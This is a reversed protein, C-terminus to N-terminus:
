PPAYFRRAFRLVDEKKKLRPNLADYMFPKGSSGQRIKEFLLEGAANWLQIHLEAMASYQIPQQYGPADRWASPQFARQRISLRYPVIVIGAGTAAAAARVWARLGASDTSDKCLVSYGGVPRPPISDPIPGCFRGGVGRRSEGGLLVVADVRLISDPYLMEPVARTNDFASFLITDVPAVLILASPNITQSPNQYIDAPSPTASFASGCWLVAIWVWLDTRM